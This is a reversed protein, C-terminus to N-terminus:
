RRPPKAAPKGHDPPFYRDRVNWISTLTLLEGRFRVQKSEKDQRTRLYDTINMWRINKEADRVVLWVDYHHAQWYAIHREDRIDFIEEGDRKRERLHSGGSKLQVYIKRGSAHGKDDRFEVEGDIGHDFMGVPRFIQNAEGTIAMMHGILIQETSQTDLSESSHAEMERLKGKLPEDQLREELHDVFHVKADCHQCTIFDKGADRRARVADDDLVPKGCEQCVYRRLREVERAYRLLHRHVFEVLVAKLSAPVEREFFVDFRMAGDPLRNVRFGAAHGETTTFEAANRWLEKNDFTNSYWLRVVLSTYVTQWEGTCTFSVHIEPHQELDRDRRYQSPFILQRGAESVEAICLAQELFTQVMARLLLEEDPRELREVDGWNFGPGYIEEESVCGIEDIHRRAALVVQSAYQSLLEPQLLVLDGFALALVLGHNGLLRVATRLDENDFDLGPMELRLRTALEGFRYLRCEPQERLRLIAKKIEYLLAPTNTVPIKGWDIHTAILQKLPSGAAGSLSDSCNDGRRASTEMYDVFGYESRFEEIKASSVATTGRDIRAAVLLSPVDHKTVSSLAKKWDLAEAFPDEDQPNILVLALATEGLFLQHV